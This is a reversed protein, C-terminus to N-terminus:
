ATQIVTGLAHLSHYLRPHNPLLLSAQRRSKTGQDTSKQKKSEAQRQLDWASGPEYYKPHWSLRGRSEEAGIWTTIKKTSIKITYRPQDITNKLYSTGATPGYYRKVMRKGIEIWDSLKSGVIRAEGEIVIKQFPTEDADILVAVRPEHRINKVWSSRKRAVIFCNTGDWDYWVPIVYPAGDPKVTALRAINGKNLFERIESAKM